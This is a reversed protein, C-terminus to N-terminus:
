EAAEVPQAHLWAVLDADSWGRPKVGYVDKYVNTACEVDICDGGLTTNNWEAVLVPEAYCGTCLPEVTEVTIGESITAVTM